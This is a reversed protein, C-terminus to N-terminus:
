KAVISKLHRNIGRDQNMDGFIPGLRKWNSIMWLVDDEGMSQTTNYTSIEKINKCNSLLGLGSVLRLDLRDQYTPTPRKCGDQGIDLYSLETLASLQKFVIPQLDQESEEFVFQVGLCVISYCIWPSFNKIDKVLVTEGYFSQLAPCSYLIEAIMPSTVDTNNHFDIVTLTNFHRKLAQFCLPGFQTYGMNLRTIQWLGDLIRHSHDNLKSFKFDLRELYPWLGQEINSAFEELVENELKVKWTLEELHVCKCIIRLQKIYEDYTEYGYLKIKQMQPFILNNNLRTCNKPLVTHAIYAERLKSLTGCFANMENDQIELGYVRLKRLHSLNSIAQWLPLGLIKDNIRTEICLSVEVLSPNAKILDAANNKNLMFPDEHFHVSLSYLNPFILQFPETSTSIPDFEIELELVFKKYDLLCEQPM